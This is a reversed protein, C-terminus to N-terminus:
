HDSVATFSFRRLRITPVRTDGLEDSCTRLAAGVGDCSALADLISENYRLNRVPAGLRGGEIRFTGDRTMGTVRTQKPNVARTYWFRTVYLGRDVGAVLEEPSAGGPELVLHRALPGWPNPAPLGHGTPAVGAAAATARDHVVGTAVGARILDVRSCPTGEDDFPLGIVGKAVPDDAISVVESAVATGMREAFASRGEQQAKASFTTLALWEMLTMVASPGLVVEEVGPEVDAPDVAQACTGAAEEGVGAADLGGLGPAADESHGSAGGGMVVTTVAARTTLAHHRAGATTAVAVESAATSVAGAAEQGSRLRGVLAAAAEARRDPSAGATAEDYPGGLRPLPAAPATGPWSPDPPTLRARAVATAAAAAVGEPSATNTVATGVRGGVAVRVSITTDDGDVHQHIASRAFRCLGGWRRRAVAEVEDAGSVGLAVDLLAGLRDEGLPESV